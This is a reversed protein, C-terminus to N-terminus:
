EDDAPKGDSGDDDDDDTPPVEESFLAEDVEDPKGSVLGFRDVLLAKAILALDRDCQDEVCNSELLRILCYGDEQSTTETELVAMLRGINARISRLQEIGKIYRGAHYVANNDPSYRLSKVWDAFFAPCDKSRFFHKFEDCPSASSDLLHAVLSRPDTELGTDGGCSGICSFFGTSSVAGHLGSDFGHAVWWGRAVEVVTIKADLAEVVKRIEMVEDSWFDVAKRLSDVFDLFRRADAITVCTWLRVCLINAADKKVNDALFSFAASLNKHAETVTTASPSDSKAVTEAEGLASLTQPNLAYPRVCEIAAALEDKQDPTASAPRKVKKGKTQTPPEASECRPQGEAARTDDLRRIAMTTRTSPTFWDTLKSDDGSRIDDEVELTVGSVLHKAQIEINISWGSSTDVSVIGSWESTEISWSFMDLLPALTSAEEPLYNEASLPSFRDEKNRVNEGLLSSSAFITKWSVPIGRLAAVEKELRRVHLQIIAERTDRSVAVGSSTFFTKPVESAYNLSGIWDSSDSSEGAPRFLGLGGKTGMLHVANYGTHFHLNEGTSGTQIEPIMAVPFMRDGEFNVITGDAALRAAVFLTGRTEEGVQEFLLVLDGSVNKVINAIRWRALSWENVFEGALFPSDPDIRTGTVWACISDSAQKMAMTARSAIEKELSNSQQVASSPAVLELDFLTDNM